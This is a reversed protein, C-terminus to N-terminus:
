STAYPNSGSFYSGMNNGGTQFGTGGYGGANPNSYSTGNGGMGYLQAGVQAGAGVMQLTNNRQQMAANYAAMASQNNIGANALAFQNATQDEQNVQGMANVQNNLASQQWQRAIDAQVGQNAATSMSSRGMGTRVMNANVQNSANDAAMQYGKTNPDFAAQLMQSQYQQYGPPTSAQATQYQPTSPSPMLMNAVMPAAAAAAMWWM